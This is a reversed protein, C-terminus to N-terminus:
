SNHPLPEDSVETADAVETAGAVGSQTLLTERMPVLGFDARRAPEIEEAIADACEAASRLGMDRARYVAFCHTASGPGMVTDRAQTSGPDAACCQANRLMRPAPTM